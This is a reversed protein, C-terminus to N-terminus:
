VDPLDRLLWFGAFDNAEANRQVALFQLGGAQQRAAALAEAASSAEDEKLDSVLWRDEMGAELVLQRGSVELRVPELGSLWGALALARSSSFLRLGPVMAEGDCSPLPVLGRFDIPWDAAEALSAAPLSAWGWSDGRVAEPLPLPAAQLPQPPPALPGNLHGEMEPYISAEREQLWEVLAYCRRSPVMELGVGEAARQVMTRMSSRWCRLRKPAPSSAEDAAALADSLATKLWISNVSDAPCFRQWQFSGDSSCILAEWRKKGNEDLLPRSYFDLEWTNAPLSM